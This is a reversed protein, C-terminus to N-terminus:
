EIETQLQIFPCYYQWALFSLYHLLRFNITIRFHWTHSRLIGHSLFVKSPTFMRKEPFLNSFTQNCTCELTLATCSHAEAVKIKRIKERRIQVNHKQSLHCCRCDLLMLFCNFFWTITSLSCFAERIIQYINCLTQLAKIKSLWVYYSYM